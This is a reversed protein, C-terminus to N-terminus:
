KSGDGSWMGGDQQGDKGCWIGRGAVVFGLLVARGVVGFFIGNRFWFFGDAFNLRFGFFVWGITVL